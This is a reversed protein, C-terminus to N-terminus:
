QVRCDIYWRRAIVKCEKKYKDFSVDPVSDIAILEEESSWYGCCYLGSASEFFLRECQECM